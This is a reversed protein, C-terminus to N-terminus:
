DFTPQCGEFEFKIRFYKKKRPIEFDEFMKLSVINHRTRYLSMLVQEFSPPCNVRFDGFLPHAFNAYDKSTALFNINRRGQQLLHPMVIKLMTMGQNSKLGMEEFIKSGLKEQPNWQVTTGCHVTLFDTPRIFGMGVVARISGTSSSLVVM